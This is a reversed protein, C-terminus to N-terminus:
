ARPYAEKRLNDLWSTSGYGVRGVVTRAMPVSLRRREDIFAALDRPDVRRSAGVKYATLKGSRILENVTTVSLRLRAAVDRVTLAEPAIRRELDALREAVLLEVADLTAATM